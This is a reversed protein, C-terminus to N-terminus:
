TLLGSPGEILVRSYRKNLEDLRKEILKLDLRIGDREAALQSPLTENFLYPNILSIHEPM